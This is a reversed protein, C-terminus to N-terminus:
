CPGSCSCVRNLLYHDTEDKVTFALLLQLEKKKVIRTTKIESNLFNLAKYTVLDAIISAQGERVKERKEFHAGLFSCLSLHRSTINCAINYHIAVTISVAALLARHVATCHGSQFIIVM